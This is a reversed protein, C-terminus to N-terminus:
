DCEWDKRDPQHFCPGSLKYWTLLYSQPRQDYLFRSGASHPIELLLDPVLVELGSPYNGHRRRYEALSAVLEDAQQFDQRIGMFAVVAASGYIAAKLLEQGAQSRRWLGMVMGGLALALLISFFLPDNFYALFAALCGRTLAVEMLSPPTSRFPM